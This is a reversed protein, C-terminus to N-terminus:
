CPPRLALLAFTDPLAPEFTRCDLLSFLRDRLFDTVRRDSGFGDLYVAKVQNRDFFGTSGELVPFEHGEVDIKLILDGKLDYSDLRRTEAQFERGRINYDRFHSIETTVHSVSGQSFTKVENTNSLGIHHTEFGFEKGNVLLRLFTDPNVEFAHISFSPEIKRYASLCGSFVGINAGVDVFTTNEGCLLALRQLILAEFKFLSRNTRSSRLYGNERLSNIRFPLSFLEVDVDKSGDLLKTVFERIKPKKIFHRDILKGTFM